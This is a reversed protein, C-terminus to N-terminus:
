VVLEDFLRACALHYDLYHGDEEVSWCAALVADFFAWALLRARDEELVTALIDVRRRAVAAPSPANLFGPIPNHQLRAAEYAPDGIVGKPDIALWRNDGSLLINRHHLDGHLLAERIGSAQLDVLLREAKDVLHAPIPGTSGDFRTRFRGFALAWREVTPFGTAEPPTVPLDRIVSAATITAREDDAMKALTTGPSIRKLLLVGQGADADLLPVIPGSAFARLADVEKCLEPNPVGMKLVADTADATTVYLIFSYSPTPLPSHITLNWREAYAKILSPLRGLWACGERGWTSVITDKFRNSLHPRIL